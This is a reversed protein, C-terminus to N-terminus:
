CSEIRLAGGKTRWNHIRDKGASGWIIQDKLNAAPIKFAKPQAFAPGILLAPLAVTLTRLIFRTM